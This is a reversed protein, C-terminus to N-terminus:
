KKGKKPKKTKPKTLKEPEQACPTEPCCTKHEFAQAKPENKSNYVFGTAHIQVGPHEKEFKEISKKFDEISSICIFNVNDLKNQVEEMHKRLINFYSDMWPVIGQALQERLKNEKIM